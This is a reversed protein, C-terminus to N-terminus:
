GKLADVVAKLRKESSEARRELENMRRMFFEVYEKQRADFEKEYNALRAEFAAQYAKERVDFADTADNLRAILRDVATALDSDDKKELGTSVLLKTFFPRVIPRDIMFVWVVAMLTSFLATHLCQMLDPMGVTDLNYFGIVIIGWLTGFLGLAIHLQDSGKFFPFNGPSIHRKRLIRWAGFTMFWLGITPILTTVASYDVVSWDLFAFYGSAKASVAEGNGGSALFARWWNAVAFINNIFALTAFLAGSLSFVFILFVKKMNKDKLFKHRFDIM